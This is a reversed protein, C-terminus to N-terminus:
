CSSSAQLYTAASEAIERAKAAAAGTYSQPKSLMDIMEPPIRRWVHDASQQQLAWRTSELLSIGQQTAHPMAIHNVL